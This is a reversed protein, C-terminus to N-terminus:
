KKKKKKENCLHTLLSPSERLKGLTFPNARVTQKM